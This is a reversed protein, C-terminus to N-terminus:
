AAVQEESQALAEAVSSAWFAIAGKGRMAALMRLQLETPVKGPVKVEIALFRGSPPVIGVLDPYGEPISSFRGGGNIRSNGPDAHVLAIQHRLRFADQIAKQVDRELLHTSPKRKKTPACLGLGWASSPTTM